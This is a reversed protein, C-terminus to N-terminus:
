DSSDIESHYGCLKCDSVHYCMRSKVTDKVYEHKCGFRVIALHKGFLPDDPAMFPEPRNGFGWHSSVMLYGTGDHQIFAVGDAWKDGPWEFDGLYLQVGTDQCYFKGFYDTADVARGNEDKHISGLIYEKLTNDVHLATRPKTPDDPWGFSYGRSRNLVDM